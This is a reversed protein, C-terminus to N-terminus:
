SRRAPVSDYHAGIVIIEESGAITAEINAFTEGQYKFVQRKTPLWQSFQKEIYDASADMSGRNGVNREGITLSLHNLHSLLNTKLEPM